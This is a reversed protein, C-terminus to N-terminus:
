QGSGIFAHTLTLTDLMPWARIATITATEGNLIITQPEYGEALLEGVIELYDAALPDLFLNDADLVANVSALLRAAQALDGAELSQQAAVLMVELAINEPATPHRVFDALIGRQRAEPGDPLWASLFYASSDNLQQYRRLTDYLEITLRL